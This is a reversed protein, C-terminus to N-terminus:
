TPVIEKMPASILHWDLETARSCMTTMFLQWSQNHALYLYNARACSIKMRIQLINNLLSVFMTHSLSHSDDCPSCCIEKLSMIDVTMQRTQSVSTIIRMNQWFINHALFTFALLIKWDKKFYQYGWQQTLRTKLPVM